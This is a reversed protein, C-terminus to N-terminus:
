YIGRYEWVPLQDPCEALLGAASQHLLPHKWDPRVEALPVLTFRRLHLAPHPVQLGPTQVIEPGYYLMDLDILRPGWREQRIRGLKEEATLLASLLLGPNLATEVIAVQNLFDPQEELGWAGTEYVKSLAVISGARQALQEAAQRLLELRKGQNSGLLIGAEM